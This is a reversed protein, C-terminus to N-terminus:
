IRVLMIKKTDLVVGYLRVVHEHRMRTMIAAEQLFSSSTALLKDSGVCKVAVQIVDSGASNKWGAQWVSGFEGQGM